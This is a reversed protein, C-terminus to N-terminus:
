EEKVFAKLSVLTKYFKDIAEKVEDVDKGGTCIIKGSDFVLFVVNYKPDRYVLGPFQEPEYEATELEYVLKDLDIRKPFKTSAVINEIKIETKSPVKVGVKRILSKTKEMAKELMEKTNAGTCIIKGSSFILSTVHMGEIRYVAGPFQEPEYEVNESVEVLDDLPVKEFFNTSAVINEINVVYEDKKQM